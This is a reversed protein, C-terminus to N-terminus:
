SSPYLIKNLSGGLEVSQISNPSIVYERIIRLIGPTIIPLYGVLKQMVTKSEHNLKETLRLTTNVIENKIQEINGTWATIKSFNFYLLSSSFIHRYNLMTCSMNDLPVIRLSPLIDSLTLTAIKFQYANTYEIYTIECENQQIIDYKDFIFAHCIFKLPVHELWIDCIGSIISKYQFRHCITLTNETIMNIPTVTCSKRPLSDITYYLAIEKYKEYVSNKVKKYIVIGCFIVPNPNYIYYVKWSGFRKVVVSM